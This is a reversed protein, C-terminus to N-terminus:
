VRRRRKGEASKKRSKNAKRKKETEVKCTAIKEATESLIFEARRDVLNVGAVVIKVVEGLRFAKEGVTLTYKERDCIIRGGSITEARIFGEVGCELEVFMGSNLVGSVVGEFEEGEKGSIYLLKYYDDVAREAAEANKETESAQVSAYETEEGFREEINETGNEILYKLIRHVVLDPYRRIPSTFHCYHAEALGFHGKAEPTYYAKQMTRLMVRNVLPFIPTNEASELIKQFDTSYVRERSRRANVGLGALFAYFRELREESPDEHVRYIFPISLYFAYEAVTCNAAIMFEEILGHALNKEAATVIIEGNKDVTISSDKVDLDISGNEARKTRLIEALERMLNLDKEVAKLKKKATEDGDFFSQVETYTLRARSKIVSPCIERDIVRGKEDITMVCSLTLREAGERLSCLDNCLREPLMPIVKEPFYVSTGREFAENDIEGGEPVFESVDAIHVGLVYRGDKKRKISVADDFDRADEGDITFTTEKRFDKRKKISEAPIKDSLRKAEEIASLPFEERLKFQYLISALEAKKEFQRGLIKSVIGEPSQKQPYSLIRCVVKDGSKAKLGKGSPVFVNSFYKGDDPSVFGGTRVTFYTGVIEKVGRELIKLVRATTRAGRVGERETTEALVTDGHMAGKLDSHPIFYDKRESSQTKALRRSVNASGADGASQSGDTGSRTEKEALSAGDPANDEEIPILFAYGRENGQLVGRIIEKKM